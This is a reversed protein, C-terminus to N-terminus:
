SSASPKRARSALRPLSAFDGVILAQKKARSWGKIRRETAVADSIRQFHDAYILTVPLRRRTYDGGLGDNHEALREDLARRTIGTYFSGDACQLIYVTAGDDASMKPDRSANVAIMSIEPPKNL